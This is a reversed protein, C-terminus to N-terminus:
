YRESTISQLKEALAKLARREARPLCGDDALVAALVHCLKVLDPVDAPRFLQSVRGEGCSMRYINFRYAWGSALEGRKWVASTLQGAGLMAYPQASKQIQNNM